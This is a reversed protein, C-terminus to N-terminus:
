WIRNARCIDSCHPKRACKSHDGSTVLYLTTPGQSSSISASPKSLVMGVVESDHPKATAAPSIEKAGPGPPAASPDWMAVTGDAGASALRDPGGLGRGGITLLKTVGAKHAGVLKAYCQLLTPTQPTFCGKAQKELM